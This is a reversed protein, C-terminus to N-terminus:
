TRTAGAVQSAPFDSLTERLIRQLAMEVPRRHLATLLWPWLLSWFAVMAWFIPRHSPNSAIDWVLHPVALYCTALVLGLGAGLLVAFRTWGWYSVHYRIQDRGSRRVTVVNLGVNWTTLFGRAEFTIADRDKATVHYDARDRRGPVFLGDVVRREIREAFDDPLPELTLQGDFEPRFPGV